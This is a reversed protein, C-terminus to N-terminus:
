HLLKGEYHHIESIFNDLLGVFKHIGNVYYFTSTNQIDFIDHDPSYLYVRKRMALAMGLETHSGVGAPMIMVLFDAQRVGEKEMEGIEKLESYTEAPANRTWDYTLSFGYEKLRSAVYRAKEKNKLSSAIYFNM